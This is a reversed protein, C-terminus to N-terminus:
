YLQLGGAQLKVPINLLSQHYKWVSEMTKELNASCRKRFMHFHGSRSAATNYKNVSIKSQSITNDLTIKSNVLDEM